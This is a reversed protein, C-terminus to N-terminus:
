NGHLFQVVSFCINMPLFFRPPVTFVDYCDNNDVDERIWGPTGSEGYHNSIAIQDLVSYVGDGNIDWYNLRFIKGTNSDLVM